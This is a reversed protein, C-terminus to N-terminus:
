STLEDAIPAKHPKYEYAPGDNKYGTFQDSGGAHDRCCVVLQGVALLAIGDRGVNQRDSVQRYTVRDPLV